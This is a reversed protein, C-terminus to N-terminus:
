APRRVALGVWLFGAVGAKIIAGTRNEVGLKGSVNHLPRKLTGASIFAAEAIEKNSL